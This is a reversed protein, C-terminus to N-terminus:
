RCTTQCRFAGVNDQCATAAQQSVERQLGCPLCPPCCSGQLHTSYVQQQDARGLYHSHTLQVNIECESAMTVPPALQLRPLVHQALAQWHWLMAKKKWCDSFTCATQQPTRSGTHYSGKM